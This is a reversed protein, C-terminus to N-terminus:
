KKNKLKEPKESKIKLIKNLQWDFMTDFDTADEPTNRNVHFLLMGMTAFRIQMRMNETKAVNIIELKESYEWEEACLQDLFTAIQSGTEKQHAADGMPELFFLDFIGRSKLFFQAYATVISKIKEKGHAEKKTQTKVFHECESKLQPVCEFLLDNSDKFYNYITAYSYGAREAVNRVSVNRLGDSKLIDIAASIFYDRVRKEQIKSKEM